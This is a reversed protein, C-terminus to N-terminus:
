DVVIDGDIEVAIVNNGFFGVRAGANKVDTAAFNSQGALTFDEGHARATDGDANKAGNADTHGGIGGEGDVITDTKEGRIRVTDEDRRVEADGVAEDNVEGAFNDSAVANTEGTMDAAAVDIERGDVDAAASANGGVFGVAGGEFSGTVGGPIDAGRFEGARGAGEQFRALDVEGM